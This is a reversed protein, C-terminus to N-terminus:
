PRLWANIHQIDEPCLMGAYNKLLTSQIIYDYRANAYDQQAKILDNQANLVDVITYQTGAKLSAETAELATKNSIESQRLAAIQSIQTMVGLYAQSTNSETQRYLAERQNYSQEYLHRAQRTKSTIAGGSYIPLAVQLGIYSHTNKPISIIDYSRTSRIIDGNINITPYHASRNIKIDDRTSELQYSAAKLSLNQDLALEVWQEMSAPEPMKFDIANSLNAFNDIYVGTIEELLKKQVALNNQARIVQSLANDMRARAIQVDTITNKVGAKYRSETQEFLKSFSQHQSQAFKLADVAKLIEFYRQVTRVILDQEAAAYRTNAEKVQASAKELQVWQQYYFIPQTFSLAFVSQDYHFKNPILPFTLNSVTVQNADYVKNYYTNNASANIIPLFLARAQPYAERAALQAERAAQITPDNLQALSYIECLDAAQTLVPIFLLISCIYKLM